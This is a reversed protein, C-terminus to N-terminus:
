NHKLTPRELLYEGLGAQPGDLRRLHTLHNGMKIILKVEEDLSHNELFDCLHSDAHASGLTHLDLLAQNLNKEMVTAAEMADQNKGSEDRSPVQM